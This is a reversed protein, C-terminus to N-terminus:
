KISKIFQLDYDESEEFYDRSENLNNYGDLFFDSLDPDCSATYVAGTDKFNYLKDSSICCAKGSKVDSVIFYDALKDDYDKAARRNKIILGRIATGSKNKFQTVKSEYSVKDKTILDIGPLNVRELLGNSYEALAKEVMEGAKPFRLNNDTYGRIAYLLKSLRDLQFTSFDIV